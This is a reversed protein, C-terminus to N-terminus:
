KRNNKDKSKSIISLYRVEIAMCGGQGLNPQMPHAADGLLTVRGIGWTNIMDRDYIDRQLIMHEPTESILTIVENCWNGFLDLLRKKKGSTVQVFDIQNM